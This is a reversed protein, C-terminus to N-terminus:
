RRTLVIFKQGPLLGMFRATVAQRPADGRSVKLAPWLGFWSNSWVMETQTVSALAQAHAKIQAYASPTLRATVQYLNFSPKEFTATLQFGAGKLILFKRGLRDPEKRTAYVFPKLRSAVVVEPMDKALLLEVLLDFLQVPSKEIPSKSM